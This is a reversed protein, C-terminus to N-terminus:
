NKMGQNNLLSKRRKAPIGRDRVAAETVKKPTHKTDNLVPKKRRVLIAAVMLLLLIREPYMLHNLTVLTVVVYLVYVLCFIDLMYYQRGTQKAAQWGMSLLLWLFGTLWVAGVLGYNKLWHIYGLDSKYTLEAMESKNRTVEGIRIAVLGSGIWPHEKFEQLAADVQLLRAEVTGTGHSVDELGSTFPLLFINEEMLVQAMGIAFVSIFAVAAIEKYKRGLLLVALAAIVVGFIGGRSQHFFRGGMFLVSLIGAVTREKSSTTMAWKSFQWIFAFGILQIGPIFAREIGARMVGWGEAKEHYLITPGFYNIVSAVLALLAAYSFWDLIRITKEDDDLLLMYIFFVVYYYQRRAAIVGQMVPQDYYFAALSIHLSVLFIYSLVFWSVPNHLCSLNKGKLLSWGLVVWILILALDSINYAGPVVAWPVLSFLKYTLVLIVTLVVRGPFGRSM